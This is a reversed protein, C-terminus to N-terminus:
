DNEKAGPIDSTDSVSVPEAGEGANDQGQLKLAKGALTYLREMLRSNEEALEENEKKLYYLIEILEARKLKRLEKDTM